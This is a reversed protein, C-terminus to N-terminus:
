RIKLNKIVTMDQTWGIFGAVFNSNWPSDTITTTLNSITHGDGDFTGKFVNSNFARGNKHYTGGDMSTGIPQWNWGSMDIDNSLYVNKGSFTCDYAVSVSFEHLGKPTTIYFDTNSSYNSDKESKFRGNTDDFTYSSESADINTTKQEIHRILNVILISLSSLLFVSVLTLLVIKTSKSLNKM